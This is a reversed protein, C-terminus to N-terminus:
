RTALSVVRAVQDLGPSMQAASLQYTAWPRRYPDVVDDDAPDDPPASLGRRAAVIAVAARVRATADPGASAVASVIDADPIGTALRAFERVTFSSRLRAPALQAVRGRHERSMALILDPSDLHAATLYRSRHASAAGADAGMAVVLRQAEPTMPAADLGQTGASHVRGGLQELTGRLVVEALPSRCINGTCVVLIEFM